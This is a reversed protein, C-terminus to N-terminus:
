RSSKPCGASTTGIAPASKVQFWGDNFDGGKTKKMAKKTLVKKTLTKKAPTAKKAAPKKVAKKAM